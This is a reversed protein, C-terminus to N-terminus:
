SAGNKFGPLFQVGVTPVVAPRWCMGCGQCAHTHHIKSAFEGEDVHREGCSPCTLILHIPARVDDVSAFGVSLENNVNVGIVSGEAVTRGKGGDTSVILQHIPTNRFTLGRPGELARLADLARSPTDKPYPQGISGSFLDEKLKKLDPLPGEGMGKLHYLTFLREDMLGMVELARKAISLIEPDGVDKLKDMMDLRFRDVVERNTLADQPM